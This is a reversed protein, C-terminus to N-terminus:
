KGIRIISIDDDFGDKDKMRLYGKEVITEPSPALELSRTFDEYTGMQGSEDPLEFIGDSFVYLWSGEPFPHEEEEFLSDEWCGVPLHSKRDKLQVIKGDPKRLVAPPHGAGCYRLIGKDIDLVGYWLTFYLGNHKEMDFHRNMAQVVESPRSFDVHPLAENKLLGMASVSLLASGVGHGCVDLLYVAFRKKDLWHFGLSDGGLTSSPIFKYSARVQEDMESPLLSLVYSLAEDMQEAVTKQALILADKTKLLDEQISLINGMRLEREALRAFGKLLERDANSFSRPERDMLCLTAVNLGDESQLPQGAYFRTYPEGVVMPNDHFRSDELTDPVVMAEAELIAHGCFSTKRDTLCETFGTKSKIFQRESDVLSIYAIPVGFVKAVLTTIADFREEPPTDILGLARLSDVRQQDNDPIKPIIM